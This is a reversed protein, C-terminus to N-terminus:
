KTINIVRDRPYCTDETVIVIKQFLFKIRQPSIEKIYKKKLNHTILVSLNHLIESPSPFITMLKPLRLRKHWM